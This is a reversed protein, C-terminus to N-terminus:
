PKSNPEFSMRANPEFSLRPNKVMMSIVTNRTKSIVELESKYRDFDRLASDTSPKIANV